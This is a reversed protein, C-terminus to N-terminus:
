RVELAQARVVAGLWEGRARRGRAGAGGMPEDRLVGKPGGGRRWEVVAPKAVGGRVERAWGRRRETGSSGSDPGRWRRRAGDRRAPEDGGRRRGVGGRVVVDLPFPRGRVPVRGRVRDAELGAM